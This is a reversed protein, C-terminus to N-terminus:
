IGPRVFGASKRVRLREGRAGPGGIRSAVVVGVAHVLEERKGGRGGGRALDEDLHRCRVSRAKEVRGKRARQQRSERAVWQKGRQGLGGAAEVPTEDVVMPLGNREGSRGGGVRKDPPGAKKEAPASVAVPQADGDVGGQTALNECLEVRRRKPPM